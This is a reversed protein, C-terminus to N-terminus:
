CCDDGYYDRHLWGGENIVDSARRLGRDTVLRPLAQVPTYRMNCRHVEAFLVIGDEQISVIRAGGQQVVGNYKAIDKAQWM